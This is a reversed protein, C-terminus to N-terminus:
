ASGFGGGWVPSALFDHFEGPLGNVRCITAIQAWHRIEHILVHAVIKKPTTVVQFSLIKFTRPTDWEQEPFRKILLALERRSEDGASFLAGADDSALTALDSLPEGALRQVYRKEASVIHKVLDGVTTFRGDGNPGVSLKLADPHNRFWALWRGRQWATYQMLDDFSLGLSM